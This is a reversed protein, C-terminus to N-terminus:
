SSQMVRSSSKYTYINAGTKKCVNKAENTTKLLSLLDNCFEPVSSLGIVVKIDAPSTSRAFQTKSIVDMMRQLTLCAASSEQMPMLVAFSGDMFFGLQDHRNIITRIRSAMLKIEDDTLILAGGSSQLWVEFSALTFPMRSIQNRSFELDINHLLLPFPLMNTGPHLLTEQAMKLSNEIAEPTLYQAQQEAESNKVVLLGCHLLNYLAPVWDGKKLPQKRMMEGFTIKGDALQYLHKQVTLPAPIGENIKSKFTSYELNKHVRTYVTNDTFGQEILQTHHDRLAAGELLYMQLPKAVTKEPTLQQPNFHFTGENMLLMELLADGGQIEAGTETIARSGVVYAHTPNGKDIFLSAAMEDNFVKMCGTMKCLSISQLLNSLDIEGLTGELKMAVNTAQSTEQTTPPKERRIELTQIENPKEDNDDFSKFASRSNDGLERSVLHFVAKADSSVQNWVLTESGGPLRYILSLEPVSSIPMPTAGVRTRVVPIVASLEYQRGSEEMTWQLTIVKGPNKLCVELTKSVEAHTPLGASHIQISGKSAHM